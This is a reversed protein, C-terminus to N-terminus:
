LIDNEVKRKKGGDFGREDSAYCTKVSQSDILGYSPNKNRGSKIRSKAVVTKLIREWIGLKKIKYFFNSVTTHPPFDHPLQRWKCGSDVLYLIANILERHEWLAKNGPVWFESKIIAWQEDTLDTPYAKRENKLIM